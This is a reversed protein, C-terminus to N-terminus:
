GKKKKKLAILDWWRVHTLSPCMLNRVLAQKLITYGLKLKTVLARSLGSIVTQFIKMSKDQSSDVDKRPGCLSTHGQNHNQGDIANSM